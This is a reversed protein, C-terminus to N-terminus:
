SVGRRKTHEQECTNRGQNSNGECYAGRGLTENWKAEGRGDKDVPDRVPVAKLPSVKVSVDGAEGTRTTGLGSVWM